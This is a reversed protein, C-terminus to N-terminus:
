APRYRNGSEWATRVLPRSVEDLRELHGGALDGGNQGSSALAVALRKPQQDFAM